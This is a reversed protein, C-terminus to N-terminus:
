GSGMGSSVMGDLLHSLLSVITMAASAAGVGLASSEGQIGGDIPNEMKTKANEKRCGRRANDIYRKCKKKKAKAGTVLVERERQKGHSLTWENPENLTNPAM